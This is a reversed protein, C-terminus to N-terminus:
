KGAEGAQADPRDKWFWLAPLPRQVPWIQDLTDAQFLEGNKMVYEIDATNHIDELPNKRLIVLDALKGAEISGLDQALGIAEAGNLTASRLADMNTVKGERLSWLEWHFSLGQFQGHGGVCIKGGAQIIRANGESALAYSYEDPSYWPTRTAKTAIVDYPIFRRVKPDKYVGTTQYFFNETGPGGYGGIVYTPTYFSGSQGLLEAVDKYVPNIPLQHENSFGDIFHTLDLALDAAGETTPIVQLRRCAEIILERQRRGGTMYAKLLNTRYYKKYRTVADIAEDLTQIDSVYFIGPGTSYARPGLIRGSDVLDQYAFTDNTGTQPDRGATVGYALNALFDWNQTDLVGRRIEFWHAHTDILGPIITRGSVDLVRAGAPAGSGKPGASVIRNDKVVIDASSLVEDGRMTIVRAGRLVITGKPTHRPAEIDFAREVPHLRKAWAYTNRREASDGAADAAAVTFLTSGLTWAITKGQNAWTAEDAGFTTLRAVANAPTSVNVVPVEGNPLPLSSQYLQNRYVILAQKGDPSTQIDVTPSYDAGWVDRGRVKMYTRRDTGDWRVSILDSNAALFTPINTITLFIREADNTFHVHRLEDGILVVKPDGGSAPMWVLESTALEHGWESEQSLAQHVGTRVAALRNGDKSWALYQYHAPTKTLRQPNGSGGARTKWIAGDGADWSVYAIWQGDPSWVPEYESGDGSVLRRPTGGATPSVYVHTLASFAVQTGDPSLSAGQIVRANIPGEDVRTPFDLKPGLERSVKAQFEIVREGGNEIDMRHIKGGTSYAIEKGDPFFAYGPLVDRSTASEQDDRQVPYKLWREEGSALDRIRLATQSHFRTGYIMRRGDPTLLPRFAGGELATIVDDEGSELDRRVIQWPTLRGGGGGAGTNKRAYYLYRQDPALVAGLAAHTPNQTPNARSKVIQTGSGGDIEYRWVEFASSFFHPKKKSVFISRSDASWFPSAFLTNEESTIARAHSGDVDATWLNDEGSRDSVFAIHRGDPSYRPLGDFELGSTIASADGGTAPMTYLRGLLDFVITRGDPSVDLSMWTGESLTAEMHRAPTLPLGKAAAGRGGGSDDPQATLSAAFILGFVLVAGPNQFLSRTSM